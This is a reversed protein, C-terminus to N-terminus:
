PCPRRRRRDGRGVRVPGRRGPPAAGGGAPRAATAQRVPVTYPQLVRLWRRDAADADRLRAVAEHGGPAARCRRVGRRGARQRRDIMRFALPRDPERRGGSRARLSPRFDLAERHGSSKTSAGAPASEVGTHSLAGPLVPGARRPRGPRCTRPRLHRLTGQRGADPVVGAHRRGSPDFVVVRGGRASIARGTARGAAQRHSDAPAIARYVVPFDVDVGAEILQTSVLLM